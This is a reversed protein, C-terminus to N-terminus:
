SCQSSKWLDQTWNGAGVHHSVAMQLPVQHGRRKQHTQLSSCHAWIWLIFRRSTLLFAFFYPLQHSSHYVFISAKYTSHKFRIGPILLSNVVLTRRQGGCMHRLKYLCLCVHVHCLSIFIHLSPKSIVTRFLSIPSSSNPQWYLRSSRNSDHIMSWHIFLV